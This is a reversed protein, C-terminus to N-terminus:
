SVLNNIKSKLSAFLYPTIISKQTSEAYNAVDNLLAVGEHGSLPLATLYVANILCRAVSCNIHITVSLNTIHM